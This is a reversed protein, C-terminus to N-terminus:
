GEEVVVVVEVGRTGAAQEVPLALGDVSERCILGRGGLVRVSLKGIRQVDIDRRRRIVEIERRSRWSEVRSCVKPDVGNAYEVISAVRPHVAAALDVHPGVFLLVRECVFQGPAARM